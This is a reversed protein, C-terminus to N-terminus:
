KRKKGKGKGKGKGNKGGGSVAARANKVAARVKAETRAIKRQSEAPVVSLSAFTAMDTDRARGSSESGSDSYSSEDDDSDNWEGPAAKPQDFANGTPCTPRPIGAESAVGEYRQRLARTSFMDFVNLAGKSGGAAMIFPSDPFFTLAYPEGVRMRKSAYVLSPEDSAVDWFKVTKDASGTAVSGPVAPNVAMSTISKEHADIVFLPGAGAARADFAYLNGDDGAVFVRYGLVPDWAVSEPDAALQAFVAGSGARADVLALTRDYSATLLVNAESPNWSVCSVKDSHHRLTSVASGSSVDWLKVCEDASGSALVQALEPNWALALVASTHSGAALEPEVGRM